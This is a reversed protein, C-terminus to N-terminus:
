TYTFQVAWGTGTGGSAPIQGGGGGKGYGAFVPLGSGNDGGDPSGGNYGPITFDGGSGIGGAGNNCNVPTVNGGHGGGCTFVVPPLGPPNFYQVTISFDDANLGCYSYGGTALPMNNPMSIVEIQSVNPLTIEVYAGGGGGQSISEIDTTTGGGGGGLGVAQILVTNAGHPPFELIVSEDTEGWYRFTQTTPFTTSYSTALSAVSGTM